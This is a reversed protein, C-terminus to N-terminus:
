DCVQIDGPPNKEPESSHSIQPIPHYWTPVASLPTVLGPLRKGESHTVKHAGVVNISIEKVNIIYIVLTFLFICM